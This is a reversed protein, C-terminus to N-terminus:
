NSSGAVEIALKLVDEVKAHAGTSEDYHAFVTTEGNLVFTGGQNFAQSQKPPRYFGGNIWKSLVENLDKMGNPKTFRDLFAFPTAPSFFTEKIGFNLDLADYLANEPDVFLYDEGHNLNLHSILQKGKEPLGISIM